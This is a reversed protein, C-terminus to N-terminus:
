PSPLPTQRSGQDPWRGSTKRSVAQKGCHSKLGGPEKEALELLVGHLTRLYEPKLWTPPMSAALNVLSDLVPNGTDQCGLFKCKCERTEAM